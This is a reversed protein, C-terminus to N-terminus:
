AQGDAPIESTSPEDSLTMRVEFGDDDSGHDAHGDAQSFGGRDVEPHGRAVLGLALAEGGVVLAATAGLIVLPWCLAAWLREFALALRAQAIKRDVYRTKGPDQSM